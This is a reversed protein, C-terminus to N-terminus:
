SDTSEPHYYETFKSIFTKYAVLPDIGERQAAVLVQVIASLTEFINQEVLLREEDELYAVTNDLEDATDKAKARVFPTAM